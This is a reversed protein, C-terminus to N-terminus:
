RRLRTGAGRAFLDAFRKAGLADDCRAMADAHLREFTATAALRAGAREWLPDAGGLLWAARQQSGSRVALWGLIELAFAIGLVDCTERKM